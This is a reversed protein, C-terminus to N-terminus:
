LKCWKRILSATILAFIFAGVLWGHTFIAEIIRSLEAAQTNTIVILAPLTSLYLMLGIYVLYEVIYIGLSYKTWYAKNLRYVASLLSYGVVISLIVRWEQMDPAFGLILKEYTEANMWLPTWFMLLWFVNTTIESVSDSKSIMQANVMPLSEPSWSPYRWKALYGSKGAFYFGATVIILVLGINEMFSGLVVFLYAFANVSQEKLLYNGATLLAYAFLLILAKIMVSKYLPMDESAVLPSQPSYSQAVKQPHGQQSLLSSVEKMELAKGKQDEKAEIEDMINARLERTIDSKQKTPLYHEVAQLYREVLEM